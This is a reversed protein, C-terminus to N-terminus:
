QPIIFSFCTGKGLESEVWIKGKLLDIFEKCLVLGLGTGKEYETGSSSTNTHVDFLESQKESTMGVGNDIINFQIESDGKQFSIQIEGGKNTFKLANSVLNRLITNLMDIDSLINLKDNTKLSLKINKKRAESSFLKIISMLLEPLMIEVPRVVIGKQQSKVWDFLNQMMEFSQLAGNHILKSFELIKEKSITDINQIMLGSFGIFTNFPNKM